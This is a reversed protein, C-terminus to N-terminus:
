SSASFIYVVIAYSVPPPPRTWDAFPNRFYEEMYPNPPLDEEEISNNDIFDLDERSPVLFLTRDNNEDHSDDECVAESDLFQSM